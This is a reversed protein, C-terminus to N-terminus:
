TVLELSLLHDDDWLLRVEDSSYEVHVDAAHAELRYCVPQVFFVNLSHMAAFPLLPDDDIVVAQRAIAALQDDVLVRFFRGPQSVFVVMKIVVVSVIQTGEAVESIEIRVSSM